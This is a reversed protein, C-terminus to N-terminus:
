PMYGAPVEHRTDVTVTANHGLPLTTAVDTGQPARFALWRHHGDILTFRDERPGIARLPDDMRARTVEPVANTDVANM